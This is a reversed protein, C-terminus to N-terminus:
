SSFPLFIERGMFHQNGTNPMSIIPERCSVNESMLWRKSVLSGFLFDITHECGAESVLSLILIDRTDRSRTARVVRELGSGGTRDRTPTQAGFTPWLLVARRGSIDPLFSCGHRLALAEGTPSQLDLLSLSYGYEVRLHELLGKARPAFIVTNKTLLLIYWRNRSKRPGPKSIQWCIPVPVYM